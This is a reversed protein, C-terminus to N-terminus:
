EGGVDLLNSATGKLFEEVYNTCPEKDYSHYINSAIKIPDGFFYREYLSQRTGFASMSIDWALRFLRVRDHANANAAQLYTGLDNSIDSAFDAESPISVLGSAGIQQLIECFRPYLRPYLFIAISLPNFDPVMTGWKDLKANLESALLLSKLTELGAIVEAIKEHIHQYEGVNITKILLQAVGLIFETKVIRRSLIQHATLPYFSSESFIKRSAEPNQYCFVRDWPVKVNDFVVITDIEDFRSGLPHDFASEKYRFSERCIFKLGPTNSPISFAYAFNKDFSSSATPFVLVEDTIGGQTALLRAGKVVFGDENKQITQASIIESTNELYLSSRNVQPNIFTHTFSLDNQKAKEYLNLLNDGFAKHDDAFIDSAAAFAMLATNMYDPSRGLMGASTKAWEQIMLRRRELDEKTKPQLFSLGIREGTQPSQDTMIDKKELQLDYLKAQSKMVGSFAPHDSINGDVQGGEIWVEAKMQNIRDIYEKGSIVAM